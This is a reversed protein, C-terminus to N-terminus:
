ANFAAQLTICWEAKSANAWTAYLPPLGHDYPILVQGLNLLDPGAQYKQLYMTIPPIAGPAMPPALHAM